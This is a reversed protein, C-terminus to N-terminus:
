TRRKMSVIPVPPDLIQGQMAPNLAVGTTPLALIARVVDMGEVVAGFAAYGANDGAAKPNADLYPAPGSCIFFDATATGPTDRAMSITGDQHALGTTLTSEHAIPKFLKAPDGQLGGEILGTLYAAPARAARYFSAGNYRGKDVYRLFNAVTIPAKSQELELVIVGKGTQVVVQPKAVQASLASPQALVAGAGALVDRRGLRQLNM